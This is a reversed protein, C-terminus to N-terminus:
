LHSFHDHLQMRIAARREANSALVRRMGEWLQEVEEMWRM